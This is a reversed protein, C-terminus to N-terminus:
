CPRQSSAVVATESRRKKFWSMWLWPKSFSPREIGNRERAREEKLLQTLMARQELTTACRLAERAAAYGKAPIRLKFNLQALTFHAAFSNPQLETAKELEDLAPYIKCSLANALGLFIRVEACEPAQLVSRSFAELAAGPNGAQFHELGERFAGMAQLPVLPSPRSESVCEEALNHQLIMAHDTM